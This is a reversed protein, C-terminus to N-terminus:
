PKLSRFHHLQPRKKYIQGDYCFDLINLLLAPIPAHYFYKHGSMAAYVFMLEQLCQLLCFPVLLHKAM